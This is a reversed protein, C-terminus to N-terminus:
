QKVFRITRSAGDATYGTIQYTGAGLSSLNVTFQNSGALLNCAIKQVQRGTVDTIVIDMKTKQAATVNLTANSNVITPYLGAIDFGSEKNLIAIIISYTVKGYADTMKLRYYNMGNVPHTDTYDFPQQCRLADATITTIGTFNRGDASRELSMTADPNNTCTVKWNIYNSNGQKVGSIYNLNIPLPNAFSISGISFPSFTTVSPWVVTGASVSGTATSTPGFANWNTGNFHAVVLDALTTIYNPSGGSSSENTWNLTVDVTATGTRDLTWYDAKSVHDLGVATVTGLAQASSRKYEATFEDSVAGGVFNNITIPVYSKTTGITKGVPFTFAGSNGIKKIPGDVYSANSAGTVSSTASMTLLTSTTLVGSTLTLVGNITRGGPINLTVGSANNITLNTPGSAVPFEASNTTQLSTGGYSLTAGGGYVISGTANLNIIGGNQNFSGNVTLTVGNDIILTGGTSLTINNLTQNSSIHLTGTGNILINNGAPLTGGGANNLQLTSAAVTTLGDYTNAGALIFAGSGAGSLSLKKGVGSIISNITIGGTGDINVINDTANGLVVGMTKTGTGQVDQITLLFTSNNRLIVNNVGNVTTGNLTLIGNAVTSNNGIILGLVRAISFEIAGVAQNNAGNNTAGNMDIGVGTIASTPDAAFQAIQAGTPVLGGIWNAGTLWDSGGPSAWVVQGFSQSCNLFVLILFSVSVRIFRKKFSPLLSNTLTCIKKM